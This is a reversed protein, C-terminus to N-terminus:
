FHRLKGSEKFTSYSLTQLKEANKFIIKKIPYNKGEEKNKRQSNQVTKQM